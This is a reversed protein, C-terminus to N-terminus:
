NLHRARLAERQAQEKQRKKEAWERSAARSREAAQERAIKAALERERKERERSTSYSTNDRDFIEKARARQHVVDEVSVSSRKGSTSATTSSSAARNNDDVPLILSNRGRAPMTMAGTAWSSGTSRGLTVSSRKSQRPDAQGQLAEESMKNQRARSTATDRVLSPLSKSHMLPRAKFERRKREEEEQAKLRADREERKRRSIAEGPLEFNPRTLPKTSKTRAPAVATKQAEAQQAQRAERQEKLRRAVAEGPLEFNPVTPAKTSKVPTRISPARTASPKAKTLPIVAKQEQTPDQELKSEHFTLSNSRRLASRAKESPKVRVTASQGLAITVRKATKDKKESNTGQGSLISKRRESKPGQESRTAEAIAELQDELRDLEELSDEIRAHSSSGAPSPQDMMIDSRASSHSFSPSIARDYVEVNGHYKNPTQLFAPAHSLAM